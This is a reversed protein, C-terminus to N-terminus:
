KKFLDGRGWRGWVEWSEIQTSFSVYPLVCSLTLKTMIQSALGIRNTFNEKLKKKHDIQWRMMFYIRGKANKLSHMGTEKCPWNKLRKSWTLPWASILRFRRSRENKSLTRKRVDANMILRSIQYSYFTASIETM